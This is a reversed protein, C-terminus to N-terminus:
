KSNSNRARKVLNLFVGPAETLFDLAFRISLHLDASFKPAHEEVIRRLRDKMYAPDDLGTHFVIFKEIFVAESLRVRIDEKTLPIITIGFFEPKGGRHLFRAFGTVQTYLAIAKRRFLWDLWSRALGCEQRLEREMALTALKQLTLAARSDKWDASGSGTSLWKCADVFAYKTQSTLIVYGDLTWAITSAGIHNSCLSASLDLLHPNAMASFGEYVLNDTVRSYVVTGVQENTLVGSFYDTKHVTATAKTELDSPTLDSCLRIKKSNFLVKGGHALLFRKVEDM